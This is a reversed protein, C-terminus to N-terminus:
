CVDISSCEDIGYQLCTKKKEIINKKIVYFGNRSVQWIINHDLQQNSTM